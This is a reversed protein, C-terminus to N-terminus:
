TSACWPTRPTSSSSPSRRACSPRASAPRAWSSSRASRGSPTAEPRRPQPARRRGRRARGRGARRRARAPADEMHLLKEREGEVAALRPHRDVASVIEAIEEATSRRACCRTATRRRDTSSRARGPSSRARARADDGYQIQAARELDGRAAAQELETRPTRSREKIAGQRRSRGEREGVPRHARSRAGEARRAGSSRRSGSASEDDKEKRLAEREIELQMIRRRLEDLEAPM